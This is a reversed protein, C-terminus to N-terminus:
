LVEIKDIGTTSPPVTIESSPIFVLSVRGTDRGGAEPSPGLEFRGPPLGSDDMDLALWTGEPLAQDRRRGLLPFGTVIRTGSVLVNGDADSLDMYWSAARQLWYLRLTFSKGAISFRERFAPIDPFTTFVDM